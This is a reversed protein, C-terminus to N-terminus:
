PLTVEEASPAPDYCPVSATTITTPQTHSSLVVISAFVYAALAKFVTAM